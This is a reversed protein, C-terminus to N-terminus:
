WATMSLSYRSIVGDLQTTRVM